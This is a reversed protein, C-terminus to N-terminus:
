GVPTNAAKCGLMGTEQLLDLTYKWQSVYIGYKSRAVEMGLLYKLQGLDKVEFERALLRKLHEIKEHVDGTIVIDDVYVIFM